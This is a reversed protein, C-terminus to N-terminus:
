NNCNTLWQPGSCWAQSSQLQAASIGRTLLDAPNDEM